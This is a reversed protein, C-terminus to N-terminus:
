DFNIACNGIADGWGVIPEQNDAKGSGNAHAAFQLLKKALGRYDM